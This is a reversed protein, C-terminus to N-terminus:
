RLRRRAPPHFRARAAQVQARTVCGLHHENVLGMAQLFSHVTTPGLYRWGRRRLERALAEAEPSRARALATEPPDEAPAFSWLFASLSGEQAILELARGANNIVAEIKGRHRVIGPDQLLREVDDSGFTAVRFPDFGAFASRFNERKNLITLWSLGAQFGELALKEFLRVDDAVPYGWETDHYLRYRRPADGWACRPRGDDGIILHNGAV